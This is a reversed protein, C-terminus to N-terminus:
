SNWWHSWATASFWSGLWGFFGGGSSPKESTKPGLDLWRTRFMARPNETYNLVNPKVLTREYLYFLPAVPVDKLLLAQADDLLKGRKVADAERDARAMLDDYAPNKYGPYNQQITSSQFLYLMNKADSFDFVWAANGAQYNKTKLNDYHVKPESPTLDMKVGIQKMMAQVAVAARKADPTSLYDYNFELPKNPGYGADALLKKAEARRAEM